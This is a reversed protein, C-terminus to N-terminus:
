GEVPRIALVVYSQMLGLGSHVHTIEYVADNLGHEPIEAVESNREMVRYKIRDGKQYARDNYRIEFNKDGSLVADAYDEKIKLEHIKM